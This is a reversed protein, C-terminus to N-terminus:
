GSDDRRERGEMEGADGREGDALPAGEEAEGKGSGLLGKRKEEVGEEPGVEAPGPEEPRPDDGDEESGVAEVAEIPM